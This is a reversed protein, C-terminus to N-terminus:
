LEEDERKKHRGFGYGGFAGAVLGVVAYVIKELLSPNDKLLIILVVFFVLAILVLLFTFIKNERREKYGLKMNENSALLYSSIHEGTIKKSISSEGRLQGMMETSQVLMKITSRDKEPISNLIEGLESPMKEGENSETQVRESGM